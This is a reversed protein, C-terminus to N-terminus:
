SKKASLIARTPAPYGEITKNSDNPDLFNELSYNKTWQTARQETLSTTQIDHLQINKYGCQKLWDELLTTNPISWVNRMGAYREKPILEKINSQNLILTELILYGGDNIHSFLRRLHELPDRRHYLVGMSFVVDFHNMDTPLQEFPMPLLHANVKPQLNQTLAYFQALFILTPDVGIVSKARAGLMRLMYYGNGCGVDLITKNKLSPVAKKVRQWKQDCRWESDIDIGFFNFPGKRWPLLSKLLQEIHIPDLDIIDNDTGVEVIAQDFNFHQTSLPALQHVIDLWQNFHGHSPNSYIKSLQNRLLNKWQKNSNTDSDELLSKYFDINM